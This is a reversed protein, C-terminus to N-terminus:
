TRPEDPYFERRLNKDRADTSAKAVQEVADPVLSFSDVISDPDLVALPTKAYGYSLAIVPVKAAKATAIDVESDGVMIAPGGTEGAAAITRLLQGPDPKAVGFTDPGSVVAFADGLGLDVLIRRAYRELKNTCVALRWGRESLARLGEEVGAYPRTRRSLRSSYIARFRDAFPRLDDGAAMVGRRELGKRVLNDMGHGILERAVTLGLPDLGNEVLLDDLADALDPASDVLTGDLDFVVIGKPEPM